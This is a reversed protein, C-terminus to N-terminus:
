AGGPAPRSRILEAGHLLADIEAASLGRETSCTCIAGRAARDELRRACAEREDLVAADRLADIASKVDPNPCGRSDGHPVVACTLHGGTGIFLSQSGCAPCPTVIREGREPPRGRWGHRCAQAPAPEPAALAAEIADVSRELKDTALVLLLAGSRRVERVLARAERELRASDM